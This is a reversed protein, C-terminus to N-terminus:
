RLNSVTYLDSSRNTSMCAYYKLDPTVVILTGLGPRGKDAFWKWLSRHGNALNVLTVVLEQGNASVVLLSKEADTFRV